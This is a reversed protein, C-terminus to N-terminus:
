RRIASLAADLRALGADDPVGFRLWRPHDAFARTWIGRQALNIHLAPADAHDNLVFLDTGGAIALGHRTLAARLQAAAASLRARASTAWAADGLAARGIAIAPGSVPWAGLMRHLRAVVDPPAIVFGLRLGALGYFKGLSRLVIVNPAALAPVISAAPAVDAFAEDVILASLRRALRTLEAPPIIRGDPNNPNVVVATSGDAIAAISQAPSSGQWADRHSGYTPGVITAAPSGLVHPLLRIAIETGPVAAIDFDRGVGYAAGAAEILAALDAADPLRRLAADPVAAHPYPFPSIGTSLDLWGEPPAGYLRTAFALDGGHEPLPVIPPPM